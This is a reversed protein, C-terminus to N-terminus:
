ELLMILSIFTNMCPSCLTASSYHWSFSLKRKPPKVFPWYTLALSLWAESNFRVTGLSTNFYPKTHIGWFTEFEKTCLDPELNCLIWSPWVEKGRVALLNRLCVGRFSERQHVKICTKFVQKNRSTDVYRMLKIQTPSLDFVEFYQLPATLWLTGPWDHKRAKSHAEHGLSEWCGCFQAHSLPVRLDCAHLRLVHLNCGLSKLILRWLTVWERIDRFGLSRINSTWIESRITVNRERVDHIKDDICVMLSTLGCGWIADHTL